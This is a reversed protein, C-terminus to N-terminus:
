ARRASEAAVAELIERSLAPDDVARAMVMAGLWSAHLAIARRRRAAGRGPTFRALFDFSDALWRTIAHRVPPGERASETGLAAVVCGAGPDDRHRESLYGRALAEIPHRPDSLARQRWRERAGELARECAAGMLADKSAFHAYFGGHTLGAAGMVDAVGAGFGRERFLRAAGEVIRERSRAAEERSVRM